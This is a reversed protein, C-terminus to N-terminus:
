GFPPPAATGPCSELMMVPRNVELVSASPSITVLTCDSEVVTSCHLCFHVAVLSQNALRVFPWKYVSGTAGDLIPAHPLGGDDLPGPYRGTLASIAPIRDPGCLKRPALYSLHYLLTGSGPTSGTSRPKGVSSSMSSSAPQRSATGPKLASSWTLV